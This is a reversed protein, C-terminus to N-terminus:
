PPLQNVRPYGHRRVAIGDDDDEDTIFRRISELHALDLYQLEDCAARRVLVDCDLEVDGDLVV